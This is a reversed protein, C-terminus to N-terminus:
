GAVAAVRPLRMTTIRDHLEAEVELLLAHRRAQRALTRSHRGPGNVLGLWNRGPARHRGTNAKDSLTVVTSM